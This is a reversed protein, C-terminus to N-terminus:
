AFVDVLGRGMKLGAAASVSGSHAPLSANDAAIGGDFGFNDPNKHQQASQRANEAGVQAQGLQIGAEALVERLRPLAAELAERVAPNGSVFSAAAQDGSISLSVEVRGMQPPTLVLEAKSELRNAMWVIKNGIEESWGPTGVPQAIAQTPQASGRPAVSAIVQQIAAATNGPAHPEEKAAAITEVLQSAFEQGRLMGDVTGDTDIKKEPVAAAIGASGAQLAAGPLSEAAAGQPTPLAAAPIAPNGAAVANEAPTPQILGLAELFPLLANLDGASPGAESDQDTSANGPFLLENLDSVGGGQKAMLQQILAAFPASDAVAASEAAADGKGPPVALTAASSLAALPVSM